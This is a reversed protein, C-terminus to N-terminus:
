DMVMKVEDTAEPRKMRLQDVRIMVVPRLNATRVERFSRVPRIGIIGKLALCLNKLRGVHFRAPRMTESRMAPGISTEQNLDYSFMGM